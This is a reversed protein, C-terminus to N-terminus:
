MKLLEDLNLDDSIDKKNTEPKINHKAEIEQLEYEIIKDQVAEFGFYKMVIRFGEEPSLAVMQVGKKEKVKKEAENRMYEMSGKITKGEKVIAKAANINIEIQKLLFEGIVQISSDKNSEMESKIKETAKQIM